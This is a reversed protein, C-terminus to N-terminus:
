RLAGIVALVHTSSVDFSIEPNGNKKLEKMAISIGIGFRQVFGLVKLSDTINPNRYDVLGPRGFNEVTVSGYPGGPSLIEIRDNFWAIRVPANTNEYSRHMIANRSIQQLAVIPYNYNRIEVDASKVDVLTSLHGRMKEDVRKIVTSLDGGITEEDVIDDGLDFGDIRLFQIWANSLYDLLSKGLTLLGVITPVPDDVSAIMKTAALREERTRDNTELAEASFAKPLYVNEFFHENLASVRAERVPFADFNKSGARRKENLVREDQATAIANRPGNRVFISGRCRVPTADSPMVSMVAVDHDLLKRKEVLLSPPPVVHGDHRIETLQRLLEDTIELGSPKGTDDVGIFLVGLKGTNPLDNAFACVAERISQLVKKNPKEKFEVRFNEGESLLNELANDSLRM